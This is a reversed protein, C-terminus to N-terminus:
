ACVLHQNEIRTIDRHIQHGHNSLRRMAKHILHSNMSGSSKEMHELTKRLRVTLPESRDLHLGKGNLLAMAPLVSNEYEAWKQKVVADGGVDDARLERSQELRRKIAAESQERTALINIVTVKEFLELLSLQAVSRPAGSLLLVKVDVSHPGTILEEYWANFTEIVLDDPLLKGIDIMIKQARLRDGLSGNRTMGWRMIIKSMDIKRVIEPSHRPKLLIELLEFFTTKGNGSPGTSLIGIEIKKAM